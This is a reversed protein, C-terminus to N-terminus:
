KEYGMHCNLVIDLGNYVRPLLSQETAREGNGLRTFDHSVNDDWCFPYILLFPGLISRLALSVVRLGM